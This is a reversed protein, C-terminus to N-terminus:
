SGSLKFLGFGSMDLFLTSDRLGTESILLDMLASPSRHGGVKRTMETMCGLFSLGQRPFITSRVILQKSQVSQPLALKRFLHM